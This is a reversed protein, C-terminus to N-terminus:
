DANAQNVGNKRHNKGLPHIRLPATACLAKCRALQPAITATTDTTTFLFGVMIGLIEM